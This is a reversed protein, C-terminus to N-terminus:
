PMSCTRCPSKPLSEMTRPWQKLHKANSLQKRKLEFYADFAERFTCAQAKEKLRQQRLDIGDRAARRIKDAEDRAQKLTVVPYAGLGRECKKGNISIWLEWRKTLEGRKTEKAILRLGVGDKFVGPRTISRVRRDTLLEKAM